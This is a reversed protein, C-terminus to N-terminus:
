RLELKYVFEDRPGGLRSCQQLILQILVITPLWSVQILYCAECADKAEWAHIQLATSIDGEGDRLGEVLGLIQSPDDWIM